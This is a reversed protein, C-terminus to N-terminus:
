RRARRLLQDDGGNDTTVYLDGDTGLQVTRIRGHTGELEPLRFQELLTGDDALRLALVGEGKLVGLLLLGDYGGWRTATSSRAAAPPSRGSGRPGCRRSPAPSDPDTMPVSEDYARGGAGDPDYGYNGGPELLNVEDDRSTGQEM